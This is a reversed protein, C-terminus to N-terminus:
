RRCLVNFIRESPIAISECYIFAKTIIIISSCLDCCAKRIWIWPEEPLLPAKWRACVQEGARVLSEEERWGEDDGDAKMGRRQLRRHGPRPLRRSRRFGFVKGETDSGRYSNRTDRGVLCELVKSSDGALSPSFLSMNGTRVSSIRQRVRMVAKWCLIMMLPTQCFSEEVFHWGENFSAPGPRMGDHHEFTAKELLRRWSPILTYNVSRGLCSYQASGQDFTLKGARVKRGPHSPQECTRCAAHAREEHPHRDKM